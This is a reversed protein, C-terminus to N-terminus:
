GGQYRYGLITMCQEYRRSVQARYGIAAGFDTMGAQLSNNANVQYTTGYNSTVTFNPGTPTSAPMPVTGESFMECRASNAAFDRM